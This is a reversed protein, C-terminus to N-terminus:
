FPGFALRANKAGLSFIYRYLELQKLTYVNYLEVNTEDWMNPKLCITEGGCEVTYLM